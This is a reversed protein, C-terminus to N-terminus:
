RYLAGQAGEAASALAPTSVLLTDYESIQPAAVSVVAPPWSQQGDLVLERVGEFGITAGQDLVRQLAQDVLDESVKAALWLILLYQKAARRLSHHRKLQDYAIRFRSSPFLDDRYRYNEFVGPKRVLWDIIHRYQM